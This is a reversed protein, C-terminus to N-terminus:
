PTMERPCCIQVTTGNRLQSSVELLGSRQNVIGFVSSLGLATNNEMEKKNFFPELVHEVTEPLSKLNPYCPIGLISDYGPNVPYLRGSFGGTKLNEITRRGVSHPRESAGVVAISQPRLLPDLHHKKRSM